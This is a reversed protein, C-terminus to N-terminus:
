SAVVHLRWESSTEIDKSEGRRRRGDCRGEDSFMERTFCSPERPGYVIADYRFVGHVRTRMAYRRRVSRVPNEPPEEPGARPFADDVHRERILRDIRFCFVSQFVSFLVASRTVSNQLRHKSCLTTSM